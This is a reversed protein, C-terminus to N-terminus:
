EMAVNMHTVFIDMQTKRMEAFDRKMQETEAGFALMGRSNFKEDILEMDRDVSAVQAVDAAAVGDVSTSFAAMTPLVRIL